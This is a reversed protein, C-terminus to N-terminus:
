ETIEDNENNVSEDKKGRTGGKQSAYEHHVVRLVSNTRNSNERKIMSGFVNYEIQPNKGESKIGILVNEGPSEAQFSIVIKGPGFGEPIKIKQRYPNYFDPDSNSILEKTIDSAYESVFLPRNDMKEKIICLKDMNSFYNRNDTNSEIKHGMIYEIENQTLGLIQLMTAFNRRFLYATAEKEVVEADKYIDNDIFQLTKEDVKAQKLLLKGALSLDLTSCIKDYDNGKCAITLNMTNFSNKESSLISYYESNKILELRKDILEKLKDPIPVYRFTNKTKGGLKLEKQSVTVIVRLAYFESTGNIKVVDSFRAGCAEANRLGLGFMLAVGFYEGDQEPNQMVSEFISKEALPSLSKQLKVFEVINKDEETSEEKIRTKSGWFLSVKCVGIFVLYNYLSRLNSWLTKITDDSYQHQITENDTYYGKEKIATLANEFDELSYDFFPKDNLYEGLKEFNTNYADKTTDAWRFYDEMDDRVEYYIELLTMGAYKNRM